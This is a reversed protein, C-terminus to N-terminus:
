LSHKKIAQPRQTYGPHEALALDRLQDSIIRDKSLLLLYRDTQRALANPARVLYRSPARLALFLSLVERYARARQRLKEGDLAEEQANLL